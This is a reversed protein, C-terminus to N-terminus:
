LTREKAVVKRYFDLIRERLEKPELITMIDGFQAFYIM